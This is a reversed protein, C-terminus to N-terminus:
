SVFFIDWFNSEQNSQGPGGLKSSGDETAFKGGVTISQCGFKARKSGNNSQM